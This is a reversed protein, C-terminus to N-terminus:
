GLPRKETLEYSTVLVRERVRALPPLVRFVRYELLGLIAAVPQPVVHQKMEVHARGGASIGPEVRGVLDGRVTLCLGVRRQWAGHWAM